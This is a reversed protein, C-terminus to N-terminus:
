HTIPPMGRPYRRRTAGLYRVPESSNVSYGFGTQQTNRRQGQSARSSSPDGARGCQYRAARGTAARLRLTRLTARTFQQSRVLSLPEVAQLVHVGICPRRHLPRAGAPMDERMWYFGWLRLHRFGASEFRRRAEGLYWGLLTERGGPTSLDESKGDGGVDGFERVGPNPCPIALIV